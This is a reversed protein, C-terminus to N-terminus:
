NLIKQLAKDSFKAEPGLIGTLEGHENILFMTGSSKIEYDFHNNQELHTLWKFLKSQPLLSSNGISLPVSLLVKTSLQSQYWELPMTTSDNGSIIEYPPVAIITLSKSNATAISSIRKLFASDEGTQSASLTVILIKSGSFETLEVKKGDVRKINLEYFNQADAHQIFFMILYLFPIVSKRM